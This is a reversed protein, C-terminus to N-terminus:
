EEPNKSKEEQSSQQSDSKVETNETSDVNKVEDQNKIAEQKKNDGTEKLPNPITPQQYTVSFNKMDKISDTASRIEKLDEEVGAERILRTPIERIERSTDMITGWMPSKVVKRIFTGMKRATTVMQQPGLVLIMLIVIFVLELPGIGFINM